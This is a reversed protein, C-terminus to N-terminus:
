QNKLSLKLQQLAKYIPLEMLDIKLEPATLVTLGDEEIKLLEAAELIFACLWAEVTSPWTETYVNSKLQKYFQILDSRDPIWGALQHDKVLTESLKFQDEASKLNADGSYGLAESQVHSLSPCLILHLAEPYADVIEENLSVLHIKLNTVNADYLRNYFYMLGDLSNVTWVTRGDLNTISGPTDLNLPEIARYKIRLAEARSFLQIPKARKVLAERYGRIDKILFQITQTGKFENLDIHCVLDVLDGPKFLNYYGTKDFSIAEFTRVGDAIEFKTFEKNKGLLVKKQIEVGIIEFVPKPNGMGYPELHALEDLFGYSVESVQVVEDIKFAPTLLHEELTESCYQKLSSQFEAFNAMPVTLGAAQEHGGFKEYLPTFRSLAEFIDFGDISRASGKAKEDHISFVIAPRHYKEVLRSAVIGIVGSNWGEGFAITIRDKRFNEQKEVQSIAEELIVKELQQRRDNTEKLMLAIEGALVSDETTLLVVGLKPDDIRGAANIKPALMFGVHGATIKKHSLDSCDILAKFGVSKTQSLAELGFKALIRNEDTLPAIDAITGFAALECLESQIPLIFDGLLASALKYAIGVGALMKYPYACGPQKPNIVSFADPIEAQCEHHDTIILDLGLQKALQAEKVSSIGCDVTILVNGGKDSISEVASLNLGYGEDHRDPIYYQVPYEMQKFCRLLLSVSTIGDVDYDGYIWISENNSIALHIRDVAKDMGKLLYPDYLEEIKPNLFKEANGEPGIKRTLIKEFAPSYQNNETTANLAVPTQLVWRKDNISCHKDMM